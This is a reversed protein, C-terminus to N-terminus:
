SNPSILTRESVGDDGDDCFINKRFTEDAAFARAELGPTLRM